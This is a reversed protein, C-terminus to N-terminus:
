RVNETTISIFHFFASSTPTLSLSIDVDRMAGKVCIICHGLIIMEKEHLFNHSISNM